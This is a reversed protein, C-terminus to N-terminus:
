MLIMFGGFLFSMVVALGSFTSAAMMLPTSTTAAGSKSSSGTSSSGGNTPTGLNFPATVTGATITASAAATPGLADTLLGTATQTVTVASAVNSAGPINNGTFDKVNSSTANFDTAALGIQNNALDYVVYASRLFTDGLLNPQGAAPYIGWGCADAGKKTKPAPGDTGLPIVFENVGVSIVAGGPGGFTFNVSATNAGLSCPVIPGYDNNNEAGVGVSLDNAINDPLYTLTTGSDLIVPAALNSQSYIQKGTVDQFTVSSLAM